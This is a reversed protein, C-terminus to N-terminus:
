PTEAAVPVTFAFTSGQGPKSQVMVEGGQLEVLHKVICLGLGTGFMKQVTPNESRFFRTFLRAQDEPSLGIGTDSVACYAYEQQHWARVRIKGGKPTYKYANSVLNILIQTLRAKDAQVPPLSDPLQVMLQQSRAEIQGRTARWTEKLVDVLSIAKLELPMHGTEIQSIDQLDSVLLQMRVANGRMARVLQEQKPALPEAMGKLLMDAYGRVSTIPTGLEHAITSVFDPDTQTAEQTRNQTRNPLPSNSVTIAAYDALALLLRREHISFPQDNGRNNAGLVGIVQDGAKLPASLTTGTITLEGTRAVNTAMEAMNHRASHLIEGPERQRYLASELQGSKEDVLMLVAEEAGTVSFVADLIEELVDEKSLGSTIVNGAKYLIDMEHVRLRLQHNVTSLHQTLTEKERVLRAESLSREVADYLQDATFPKSMYDKVGKRFLEVVIAESGHSTIMIIPINVQRAQLADVVEFGTLRPMEVDLLILDPSERMAMELGQAGDTAELIVLGEWKALADIIFDRIASSDDIVLICIERM